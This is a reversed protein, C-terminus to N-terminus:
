SLNIELEKNTLAYYLNQLQHVYSVRAKHFSEEFLNKKVGIERYVRLEGYEWWENFKGHGYKFGCEIFYRKTLPIPEITDSLYISDLNPLEIEYCRKLVDWGEFKNKQESYLVSIKCPINDQDLVWNGIRLDKAEIM